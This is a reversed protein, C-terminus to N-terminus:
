FGDYRVFSYILVMKMIKLIAYFLFGKNKKRASPLNPSRWQIKLTVTM